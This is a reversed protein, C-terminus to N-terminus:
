QSNREVAEAQNQGAERTAEAQNELAAAQNELTDAAAGTTNDAQQELGAARNELMDAQNDASAEVQDGAENGGCAAIAAFGALAIFKSSLRM